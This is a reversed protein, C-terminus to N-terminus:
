SGLEYTWPLIPAGLPIHHLPHSSRSFDKLSREAPFPIDKEDSFHVKIVPEPGDPWPRNKVIWNNVFEEVTKRADGRALDIYGSSTAKAELVPSVEARLEQLHEWKDFRGWGASTWEQVSQSDVAVPLQPRFLPAVVTVLRRGEDIHINWEPLLPIEYRYTANFRMGATTTGRWSGLDTRVEETKTIGNTHITGGEARFPILLGSDLPPKSRISQESIM